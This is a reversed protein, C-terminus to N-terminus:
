TRVKKIAAIIIIVAAGIGLQILFFMVLLLWFPAEGITM